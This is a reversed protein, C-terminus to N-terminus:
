ISRIFDREASYIFDKIKSENAERPLVSRPFAANLEDLKQDVLDRIEPDTMEAKRIKLLLSAEPRPFIIFGTTLLEIAECCIRVTHYQAKLDLGSTSLRAREGYQKELRYLPELWLHYSTTEGFDKGCISLHQIPGGAAHETSYKIGEMGRLTNCITLFPTSSELLTIAKQVTLLKTGKNGYKHAQGAAYGAFPKINSTIIYPKLNLIEEWLPSSNKWFARPAFFMDTAIVQGKSLMHLYFRLSYDEEEVKEGGVGVKDQLAHTDSFLLDWLPELHIHKLDQDSGPVACGFLHSGYLVSFVNSM